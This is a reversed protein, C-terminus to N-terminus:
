FVRVGSEIELKALEVSYPLSNGASAYYNVTAIIASESWGSKISTDKAFNFVYQPIEHGIITRLKVYESEIM